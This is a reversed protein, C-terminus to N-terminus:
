EEDFIGLREEINRMTAEQKRTLEFPWTKISPLFENREWSSLDRGVAENLIAKVRAANEELTTM